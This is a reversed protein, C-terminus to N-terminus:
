IITDKMPDETIDDDKNIEIPYVAKNKILVKGSDFINNVIEDDTPDATIGDDQNIEVDNNTVRNVRVTQKIAPEQNTLSNEVDKARCAIIQSHTSSYSQQEEMFRNFIEDVLSDEIPNEPLKM